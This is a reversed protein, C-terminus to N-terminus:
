TFKGPLNQLCSLQTSLGQLSNIVFKKEIPVCALLVQKLKLLINDVASHTYSTLLVSVGLLSLIRVLAM